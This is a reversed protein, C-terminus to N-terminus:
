SFFVIMIVTYPWACLFPRLLEVLEVAAIAPLKCLWWTMLDQQFKWLICIGFKELGEVRKGICNLSRKLKRFNLSKELSAKFELGACSGQWVWFQDLRQKHHLSLFSELFVDVKLFKQFIALYKELFNRSSKWLGNVCEFVIM